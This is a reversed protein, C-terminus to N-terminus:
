STCHPGSAGPEEEEAKKEEREADMVKRLDYLFKKLRCFERNTFPKRRKKTTYYGASTFLKDRDPFYDELEVHRKQDFEAGRSDRRDATVKKAQSNEGDEGCKRKLRPVKFSEEDEEM